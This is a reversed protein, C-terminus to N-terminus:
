IIGYKWLYYAVLALVALIILIPLIPNKKKSFPDLMNLRANKSLEALHTLTRGFEINITARANIAWGNADLVPALNRKRLKLWALLMSPGSIALILGLFALPMKWWTLALFGGVVSALVSGIAGFALGIAAFIGAFKGIDFPQPAPAPAANVKAADTTAIGVQATTKELGSTASNTVQEDKSAAFKEVQISVFKAFKRYPSWFAQRISIPNDIIKTISADWVQGKKDYFLANRGVTLNDVDGDTLCVVITMKENTARSICDCYLLCIGSYSAMTNHKAMDTVKICLNCSRQDIYLIGAQFVAEANPAYFDAFTVFNNLIQYLDRYYRVLQDVLIINGAEKELEKDKEVLAILKNKYDDSLIARVGNLTLAEAATGAKEAQWTVFADFGAIIQKWDDETLEKKIKAPDTVLVKFTALAGAWAPNIGKSLNLPKNAEIKALPFEAIEDMCGSLNKSSIAEFRATLTNLVDASVPDFEALQCRVFYDDIKARVTKFADFAKQTDAGYPLIVSSNNEAKAHWAAYDECHQFFLEIQETFVGQKGSRDTVGGIFTIIDNICKKLNEDKATDETIVGDGNFRTKAFIAETDSTEEVTLVESDAKGLNKLIQKSSALLDKGLPNDDNIAALPLCNNHRVLDDPNKIVSLIWKVAALIEPVKIKGDKDTDILELTKSDVELGHVPCSLATWLKQDLEGLHQLDAGSELNVRNVGGVRSFQWVHKVEEM